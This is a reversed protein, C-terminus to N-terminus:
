SQLFNKIKVLVDLIEGNISSLNALSDVKSVVGAFSNVGLLDEFSTTFQKVKGSLTNNTIATNEEDNDYSDGSKQDKDFLTFYDIGFCSCITQYQKMKGKGWVPIISVSFSSIDCGKLKLLKPLAYKEAPGEVLISKRTFFLQLNEELFTSIHLNREAYDDLVDAKTGSGGDTTSIVENLESDIPYVNQDKILRIGRWDKLSIFRESQTAYVVQIDTQSLFDNFLKKQWDAHLHLEPEDVLFIVPNKELSGVYCLLGYSLLVQYGSGLHQPLLLKSGVLKSLFASKYPEEMDVFDIQFEDNNSTISNVKQNVYNILRGKDDVTTRLLNAMENYKQSIEDSGGGSRDRKYKWTLDTLIKGMLSYSGSLERDREKDFYFSVPYKRLKNPNFTLHYSALNCKRESHDKLDFYATYSGGSVEVKTVLRETPNTFDDYFDQSIVGTLPIITKTIIFPDDLLREARERRKIELRVQNCPLLLKEVIGRDSKAELGAFFPKTTTAEFTIRDSISGASYHFDKESIRTPLYDRGFLFNLAELVATKGSGNSGIISTTPSSFNFTFGDPGFCRFNKIKIKDVYM